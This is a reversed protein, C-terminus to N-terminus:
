SRLMKCFFFGDGGQHIPFLREQKEIKFEPHAQIFKEIIAENEEKLLSCTVYILKGGKKVWRSQRELIESQRHTFEPISEPQMNWRLAPSHRITGLGTCPADVFVIDAKEKLEPCPNPDDKGIWKTQLNKIKLRHARRELEAFVRADVDVCYIKGRNKQLAALHLAKGGTRSCGDVITDTLKPQTWLCVQQSHEDQVEFMGRKFSNLGRVNEKKVFYMSGHVKGPQYEVGESELSQKIKQIDEGNIRVCIQSEQNQVWAIEIAKDLGFDQIWSSIIWVPYSLYRAQEEINKMSKTKKLVSELSESQFESVRKQIEDFDVDTPQMDWLRDRWKFAGYAFSTLERRVKSSLKSNRSVIKEVHSRYKYPEEFMM